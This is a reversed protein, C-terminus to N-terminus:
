YRYQWLLDLGLGLTGIETRLSWQPHFRWDLTGSVGSQLDGSGGSTQRKLSGEFWLEESIQYAATYSDWTSDNLSAVRGDDTTSEQTSYFELGEVNTIENAILALSAGQSIGGGSGGGGIVLALVEAEGGPLSPESSWNLTPASLTGGVDLRVLVNNPAKWTAGIQLHPDGLDGPEFVILGRDVVFSRGLVVFRSGRKLEVGGSISTGQDLAIQPSGGLRVDLLSNKLRVDDGLHVQIYVPVGETSQEKEFDIPAQVISIDPNEELEILQDDVGEALEAMLQPVKVDVYLGDDRAVLQGQTVGSVQALPTAGQSIELDNANLYFEGSHPELNRLRVIARGTLNNQQSAVRASLNELRLVNLGQEPRARLRFSVDDMVAGIGVPRLTGSELKMDGRISAQAPRNSAKDPPTLEVRLQGRLPGSIEDFVEDLFPAAAAANYEKSNLAITVPVTPSLGIGGDLTALTLKAEAHLEGFDDVLRVRASAKEGRNMLEIQADGLDHRGAVLRRMHLQSELQPLFGRRTVTLAGDVQGQVEHEVALGLIDLPFSELQARANGTWFPSEPPAKGRIHAWPLNLEANITGLSRADEEIQVGGVLAGTSASYRANVRLDIPRVLAQNGSLVLDKGQLVATLEPHDVTGSVAVRAGVTGNRIPLPLGVPLKSAKREVILAVVDVPATQIATLLEQASPPHTWWTSLPLQLNGSVSLLQGRADELRLAAEVASNEVELKTASKFEVGHLSLPRQDKEEWLLALDRTKTSLDFTPQKGAKRVIGLSVEGEGSVTLERPLGLLLSLTKLDLHTLENKLSGAGARWSSAEMLRGPINANLRSKVTALGPVLLHATGTLRPGKVTTELEAEVDLLGKYAGKTLRLEIAGESEEALNLDVRGSIEGELEGPALGLRRSLRSLSLGQADLEVIGGQASMDVNGSIQGLSKLEFERAVVRGSRFSLEQAELSIPEEDGEFVAKLEYAAQKEIDSNAEISIKHGKQTVATGELHPRGIPGNQELEVSDFVANKLRLQAAQVKTQAQLALPTIPPGQITAQLRINSAQAAGSRIENALLDAEAHLVDDRYTVDLKGRVSGTIDPHHPKLYESQFSLEAIEARLAIPQEPGLSLQAIAKLDPQEVEIKSDLVSGRIQTHAKLPPLTHEGITSEQTETRIDFNPKGDLVELDIKSRADISSRPLKHKLRSLDLGSTKLQAQARITPALVLQGEATIEFAETRDRGLVAASADIALQPLKGRAHAQLAIPEDLPWSGLVPRLQAPVLRPFEARLDLNERELKFTYSMPIDGLTGAVNGYVAGPVRVHVDGRATADVGFAGSARLAFKKIDLLFGKETILMQAVAQELQTRMVPSGAISGDAEVDDLVIRPMWIRLPRSPEKKDADAKARRPAFADALSIHTQPTGSEDRQKTPFLHLDLNKAGIYQVEISLKELPALARRAIDIPSISTDLEDLSLVLRDEPDYIKIGELSVDGAFLESVGAIEFRGHFEANLYRQLLKATATRSVPTGLHLLAGAFLCLFFYGGLLSSSLLQAIKKKGNPSM